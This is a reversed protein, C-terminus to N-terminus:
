TCESCFQKRQKLCCCLEGHPCVYDWGKAVAKAGRETASSIQYGGDAYVTGADARTVQVNVYAM